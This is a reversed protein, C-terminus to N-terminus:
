FLNFSVKYAVFIIMIMFDGFHEAKFRTNIVTKTNQHVKKLSGAVIEEIFCMRIYKKKCELQFQMVTKTNQHM